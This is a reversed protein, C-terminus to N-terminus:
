LNFYNNFFEIGDRVLEFAIPDEAKLVQTAFQLKEAIDSYRSVASGTVLDQLQILVKRPINQDKPSDELKYWGYEVHVPDFLYRILKLLAKNLLYTESYNLFVQNRRIRKMILFAITFIETTYDLAINSIKQDILQKKERDYLGSVDHSIHNQSRDFILKPNTMSCFQDIKTAPLLYLDVSFVESGLEVLYVYGTGGFDPVITDHWPPLIVHFHTRMIDELLVHMSSISEDTFVGVFDVDSARDVNRNVMSGRVYARTFSPSVALVAILKELIEFQVPKAALVLEDVSYTKM